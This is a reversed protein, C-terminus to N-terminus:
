APPCDVRWDPRAPDRGVQIAQLTDRLRRTVPGVGGDGVTVVKGDAVLEGVAIFVAATGSLAAEGEPVRALLEDVGLHREEVRLGLEDAVNILSDRTVGPLITGDALDRTILTDDHILFFNAAGTEQVDGGPCFLVQDCGHERRARVIHQLAAAYNGGTKVRGFGPVSRTHATEVWLRLTKDAGGLYDGVPAAMLLLEASDSPLGAGGINVDDAYILPRLYLAGPQEPVADLQTGVVRQLLQMVLEAPPVPLCLAAASDRLRQVHRDPRFLHVGGDERRYAKLGEFCSSAYHLVHSAPHLSLAETAVMRPEGWRGDEFRVSAMRPAFRTGFRTM